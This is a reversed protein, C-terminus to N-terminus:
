GLLKAMTIVNEATVALRQNREMAMTRLMSYAEQEDVRRLKMVIGKAREILKRESLNSRAQDLEQRLTRTEEFRALAVDVIPRIREPSLGGVVYASVGAAVAERIKGQDPDDTFLVVPKPDDRTMVCVHEITDRDPSDRDIVILDAGTKRVMSLLDEVGTIHAVVEYGAGRLSKIVLQARSVDDDLLLVRLTM